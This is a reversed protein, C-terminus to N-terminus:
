SRWLFKLHLHHLMIYNIIYTFILTLCSHTFTCWTKTM